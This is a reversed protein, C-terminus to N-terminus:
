RRAWVVALCAFFVGMVANYALPHNAELLEWAQGIHWVAPVGFFAVLVWRLLRV